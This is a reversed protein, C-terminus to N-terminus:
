HAPPPLKAATTIGPRWNHLLYCCVDIGSSLAPAPCGACFGLLHLCCHVAALAPRCCALCVWTTPPSATSLSTSRASVMSSQSCTWSCLVPGSRLNVDSLILVSTHDECLGPWVAAHHLHVLVALMASLSALLCEALHAVPTMCVHCALTLSSPLSAALQWLSHQQVSLTVATCVMLSERDRSATARSCAQALDVPLGAAVPTVRNRRCGRCGTCPCVSLCGHWTGLDCRRQPPQLSRQRCVPLSMLCGPCVKNMYTIPAPPPVNEKSSSDVPSRGLYRVSSSPSTPVTRM